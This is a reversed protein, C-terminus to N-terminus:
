SPDFFVVGEGAFAVLGGTSGPADGAAVAQPMLRGIWGVVDSGRFQAGHGSSVEIASLTPSARLAVLGEGSLQVMPVHEVAGTALRGSEHRLSLDFGVLRDERVYLFERGLVIIVLRPTASLILAGGGELVVLPARMGGLPEDLDRGRARRHIASSEFRAGESLMARVHDLRVAFGGALRCLAVEANRRHIRTGPAVSLVLREALQRPSSPAPLPRESPSSERTETREKPRRETGITRPRLPRSAPPLPEEGLEVSHWRGPIGPPQSGARDRAFPRVDDELEHMAEAAVERVAGLDPRPSGDLAALDHLLRRMRRAMNPQEAREFAAVAKELDGMREYTLGLYGWARRHDAKKAVVEELTERARGLQGTKLYCLGLNLRPALEEPRARVIEEYIAIARPYHGLRFYVVGLLGQGEVDRPQLALAAELEEKAEAVRHEELLESGRYLHFLFDEAAFMGSSPLESDRGQEDDPAPAPDGGLARASAEELSTGVDRPEAM